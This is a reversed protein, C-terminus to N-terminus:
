RLYVLFIVALPLGKIATDALHVAVNWPIQALQERVNARMTNEHLSPLLTCGADMWDDGASQTNTSLDVNDVKLTHGVACKHVEEVVDIM